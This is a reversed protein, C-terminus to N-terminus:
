GTVVLGGLIHLGYLPVASLPADDTPRIGLGDRFLYLLAATERPGHGRGAPILLRMGLFHGLLAREGTLKTEVLELHLAEAASGLTGVAKAGIERSKGAGSRLEALM